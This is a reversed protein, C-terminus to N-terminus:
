QRISCLGIPFNLTILLIHTLVAILAHNFFNIVRNICNFFNIVQCSQKYSFVLEESM